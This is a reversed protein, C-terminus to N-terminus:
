DSHLQSLLCPRGPHACDARDSPRKTHSCVNNTTSRCGPDALHAGLEEIVRSDLQLESRLRKLLVAVAELPDFPNETIRQDRVDGFVFDRLEFGLHQLTAIADAPLNDGKGGCLPEKLKAPILELKY